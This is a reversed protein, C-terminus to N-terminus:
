EEEEAQGWDQEQRQWREEASRVGEQNWGTSPM